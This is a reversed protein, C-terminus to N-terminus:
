GSAGLVSAVERLSAASSPCSVCFCPFFFFGECKPSQKSKREWTGQWCCRMRGPTWRQEWSVHFFFFFGVPLLLLLLPLRCPLLVIAPASAFCGRGQLWVFSPLLPPNRQRYNPILLSVHPCRWSQANLRM